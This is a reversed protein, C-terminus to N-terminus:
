RHCAPRVRVRVGARVRVRLLEREREAERTGAKKSIEDQDILWLKRVGVRARIGREHGAAVGLGLLVWPHM